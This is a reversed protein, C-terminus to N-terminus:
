MSRAAAERKREVSLKYSESKAKDERMIHEIDSDYEGALRKSHSANIIYRQRWRNQRLIENTNYVPGLNELSSLMRHNEHMIHFIEAKRAASNLSVPGKREPVFSSRTMTRAISQIM